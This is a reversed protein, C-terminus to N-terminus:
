PVDPTLLHALALAAQQPVVGNGLAKLQDERTIGIAPDTVHGPELGMMWEVFRPALRDGGRPGTETPDPAPRGTVREWRTVAAAYAGWRDEASRDVPQSRTGSRERAPSEHPPDLRCMRAGVQEGGHRRRDPDTAARDSGRPTGEDGRGTPGHPAPAGDRRSSAADRPAHDPETGPGAGTPARGRGRPEGFAGGSETGDPRNRDRPDRELRGPDAPPRPGAGARGDPQQRGPRGPEWGGPLRDGRADAPYAVVFVRFRGHPAGADAARVGAWRADYGLDALDGLVAGLARLPPRGRREPGGLDWPDPEVSSHAEASLLGRVNEIVVLSPALERIALAFHSWLGSRTDPRLGRRLGAHSVDQCPFGGTLIDVPEVASWDIATIDGHNPVDPWRHALIRSPAPDYESFWAPTAGTAAEVGLDLGGYGAFLAGVKM